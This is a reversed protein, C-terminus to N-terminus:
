FFKFTRFSSLSSSRLSSVTTWKQLGLVWCIPSVWYISFSCSSTFSHLAGEILLGGTLYNWLESHHRYGSSPWSMWHCLACCLPFVAVGQGALSGQEKGAPHVSRVGEHRRLSLRALPCQSSRDGQRSGQEDMVLRRLAWWAGCVPPIGPIVKIVSLVTRLSDM